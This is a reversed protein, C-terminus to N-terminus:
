IREVLGIQSLTSCARLNLPDGVEGSDAEVKLSNFTLSKDYETFLLFMKFLTLKLTLAPSFISSIAGLPKPLVVRKFSKAPCNDGLVPEIMM